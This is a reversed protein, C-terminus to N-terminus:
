RRPPHFLDMITTGPPMLPTFEKAMAMALDRNLTKPKSMHFEYASTNWNLGLSQVARDIAALYKPLAAVPLLPFVETSQWVLLRSHIHYISFKTFGVYGGVYFNHTGTWRFVEYELGPM